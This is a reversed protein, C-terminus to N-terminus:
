RGRADVTVKERLANAVKWGRRGKSLCGKASKLQNLEALQKVMYLLPTRGNSFEEYLARLLHNAAGPVAKRRNKEWLRLTQETTGLIRALNKQTMDMEIRLFRLEAGNLLKPLSILWKGITRHLGATDQISVGMGYATKHVTYGNTLVVNDLGSETYRHTM